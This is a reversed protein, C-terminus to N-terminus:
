SRQGKNPATQTNSPVNRRVVPKNRKRKISPLPAATSSPTPAATTTGQSQARLVVKRKGKGQGQNLPRTPSLFKKREKAFKELAVMTDGFLVSSGGKEPLFPQVMLWEKAAEPVQLPPCKSLFAKRRALMSQAIGNALFTSAHATARVLSKCMSDRTEAEQDTIVDKDNIRRVAGTLSDVAALALLARRNQQEIDVLAQVPITVSSASVSTYKEMALGPVPVEPVLKDKPHSYNKKRYRGIKKSWFNNSSKAGVPLDYPTAVKSKEPDDQNLIVTEIRRFASPILDTEPFTPIPHKLNLLDSDMESCTKVQPSEDYRVKLTPLNTHIGQLVAKFENQAKEDWTPDDVNDGGMSLMDVNSFSERFDLRVEGAPQSAPIPDEVPGESLDSGVPHLDLVEQLPAQEPVTDVRTVGTPYESSSTITSTPGQGTKAVLAKLLSIVETDGKSRSRKTKKRRRRYSGSSSSSSSSSSPSSSPSRRRRHRKKRERSRGRSRRPSRQVSQHDDPDHRSKERHSPITMVPSNDRQSAVTTPHRPFRGDEDHGRRPIPSESRSRSRGRRSGQGLDQVEQERKGGEPPPPLPIDAQNLSDSAPPDLSKTKTKSSDKQVVKPITYSGLPKPGSGTPEKEKGSKKKDTSPKAKTM